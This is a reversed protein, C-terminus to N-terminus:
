YQVNPVPKNTGPVPSLPCLLSDEVELEAKSKKRKLTFQGGHRSKAKASPTLPLYGAECEVRRKEAVIVKGVLDTFHINLHRRLLTRSPSISLVSGLLEANFRPELVMLGGHVGSGRLNPAYEALDVQRLWEMVRHNSWTKVNGGLEGPIARRKWCDFDFSNERLVQIGRRLSYHHLLNTVKLYSLDDVTLLNLLRGDVRSELFSDKYQPLGVDDLWRVVWSCDLSGAPDPRNPDVKAQIALLLKKRHLPNRIGLKLDMDNNALRALDKGTGIHRQVEGTYQGLGITELWSCLTDVSWDTFKQRNLNTGGGSWGLRGSATARMGGRVFPGDGTQQAVTNLRDEFGGSNSRKIKGLIKKLGRTSRGSLSVMSTDLDAAETINEEQDSFVVAKRSTPSEDEPSSVPTPSRTLLSGLHTPRQLKPTGNRFEELDRQLRACKLKLNAVETKLEGNKLELSSEAPSKAAREKSSNIASELNKCLETKEALQKELSKIKKAQGELQDELVTSQLQLSDKDRELQLMREEVGSLDDVAPASADSKWWSQASEIKNNQLWNYLFEQTDQDIQISVDQESSAIIKKLNILAENLTQKSTEKERPPTPDEINFTDFYHPLEFKAGEMEYKAGQIIGDMQELAAELM